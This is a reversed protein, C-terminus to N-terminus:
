ELAIDDLYVTGTGKGEPFADSEFSVAIAGLKSHDVFFTDLPVVVKQWETTMKGAPVYKGIEESKVSDGIKDWHRDSLGVMFHEDGKEGRVWFTIAKYASGDLYEEESQEPVAAAGPASDLAPVARQGAPQIAGAPPAGDAPAVLHAPKKLSTYYGCWGGMGYPGGENEKDYRLLLVHTKKGEVTDERRSVLAKSPAKQFVNARGGLKNKIEEGEFDDVMLKAALAPTTWAISAALALLGLLVASIKPNPQSTM